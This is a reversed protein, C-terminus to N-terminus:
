NNSPDVTSRHIGTSHNKFDEPEALYTRLRTTRTFNEFLWAVPIRIAFGHLDRNYSVGLEKSM